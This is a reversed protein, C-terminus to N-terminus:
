KWNKRLKELIEPNDTTGKTPGPIYPGHEDYRKFAKALDAGAEPTDIAMTQYFSKTAMRNGEIKIVTLRYLYNEQIQM